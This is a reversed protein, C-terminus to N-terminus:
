HQQGLIVALQLQATLRPDCEWKGDTKTLDLNLVSAYTNDFLKAAGRKFQIEVPCNVTQTNKSDSKCKELKKVKVFALRNINNARYKAAGNLLADTAKFRASIAASIDDESPQNTDDCGSTILCSMALLTVYILKSMKM